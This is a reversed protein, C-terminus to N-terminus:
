AHMSTALKALDGDIRSIGRGARNHSVRYCSPLMPRAEDILETARLAASGFGIYFGAHAEERRLGLFFFL